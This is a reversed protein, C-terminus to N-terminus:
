QLFLIISFYTRTHTHTHQNQETEVAGGGGEGAAAGRESTCFAVDERKVKLTKKKEGDQAKM